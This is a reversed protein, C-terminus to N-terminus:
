HHLTLSKVDLQIHTGSRVLTDTTGHTDHTDHTGYAICFREVTDIAATTGDTITPREGPFHAGGCFRCSGHLASDKGREVCM